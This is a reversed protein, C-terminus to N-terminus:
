RRRDHLDAARVYRRCGPLLVATGAPGQLLFRHMTVWGPVAGFFPTQSNLKLGSKEAAEAQVNVRHIARGSTTVRCDAQEGRLRFVPWKGGDM